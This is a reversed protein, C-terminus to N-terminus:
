GQIHSESRAEGLKEVKGTHGEKRAAPLWGCIRHAGEDAQRMGRSSNTCEKQRSDEEMYGLKQHIGM